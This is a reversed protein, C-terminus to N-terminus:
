APILLVEIPQGADGGSLARAVQTGANLPILQGNAGVELAQGGTVTAGATAIGTGLVDVAFHDDAAADCTALGFMAGGASAVDGDHGVAQRETIAAAALATLTLVPIKTAPM